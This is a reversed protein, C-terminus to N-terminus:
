PAPCARIPKAPGRRRLRGWLRRMLKQPGHSYLAARNVSFLLLFDHIKAGDELTLTGDMFAEATHLEPNIFLKTYLRRDRLHIGVDPGPLLGGFVHVKGDADRVRLKGRRICRRLLNSLLRVYCDETTM